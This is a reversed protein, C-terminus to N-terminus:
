GSICAKITACCKAYVDAFLHTREKNKINTIIGKPILTAKNKLRESVIIPMKDNRDIIKNNTPSITFTMDFVSFCFGGM